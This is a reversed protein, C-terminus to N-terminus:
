EDTDEIELGYVILVAVLEVTQQKEESFPLVLWRHNGTDHLM